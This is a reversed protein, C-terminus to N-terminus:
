LKDRYNLFFNEYAYDLATIWLYHAHQKDAIILGIKEVNKCHDCPCSSPDRYIRKGIRNEFWKLSHLRLKM